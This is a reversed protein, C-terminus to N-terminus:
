LGYIILHPLDMYYNIPKTTTGIGLGGFVNLPMGTASFRVLLMIEQDHIPMLLSGCSFFFM